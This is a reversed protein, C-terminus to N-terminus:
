KKSINKLAISMSSNYFHNELLLASNFPLRKNEKRPKPVEVIVQKSRGYMKIKKNEM